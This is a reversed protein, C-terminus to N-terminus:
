WRALHSLGGEQQEQNEPAQGQHWLPAAGQVGGAAACRAQPVFVPMDLTRPNCDAAEFLLM